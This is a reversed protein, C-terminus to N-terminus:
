LNALHNNIRRLIAQFKPQKGFYIASKKEFEKTYLERTTQEFGLELVVGPKLADIASLLSSYERRVGASRM